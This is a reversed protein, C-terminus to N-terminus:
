MNLLSSARWQNFCIKYIGAVFWGVQPIEVDTSDRHHREINDKVIWSM